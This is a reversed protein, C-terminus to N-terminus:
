AADERIGKSKLYRVLAELAVDSYPGGREHAIRELGDKVWEPVRVAIAARARKEKGKAPRAM